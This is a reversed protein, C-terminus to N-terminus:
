GEERLKELSRGYREVVERTKSIAAQTTRLEAVGELDRALVASNALIDRGYRRIELAPTLVRHALTVVAPIVILLLIASGVWWWVM